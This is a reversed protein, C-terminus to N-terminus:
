KVNWGQTKLHVYDGSRSIMGLRARKEVISGVVTVIKSKSIDDYKALPITFLIRLRRRWSTCSYRNGHLIEKCVEGTAENIPIKEEFIEQVWMQILAFTSYNPLFAM